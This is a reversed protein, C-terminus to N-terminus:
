QGVGVKTLEAELRREYVKRRRYLRTRRNRIERTESSEYKKNGWLEMDMKTLPGKSWIYEQLEKDEKRSRELDRTEWAIQKTYWEIRGKVYEIYDFM